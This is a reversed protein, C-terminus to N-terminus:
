PKKIKRPSVGKHTPKVPIINGDKDFRIPDICVERNYGAARGMKIGDPYHFRHYVIYWEDKGPIQLISHHGTGYIGAATDKAIVLNNAPVTIKGQPADSTGYRVQYDPDRTDHESWTFYYKGNRYFVYTGENYSRVPTLIVTTGPVLSTMDDQLEAAAMYGNGWYLYSKGTKPDTFVDPDIQQGRSVGEPFGDILPKGSDVFPGTPHDAVAVGIKKGATFYFFYKYRGNIKKEIICPAWANSTAWSVDKGLQLIVGEDKWATLDSSSFVSFYTGTWDTFGDSTPYIYFKGTKESYLIDPDAYYGKLVPNRDQGHLLTVFVLNLVLISWCKMM